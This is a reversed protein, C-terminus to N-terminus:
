STYSSRKFDKLEITGDSNLTNGACCQRVLDSVKVCVTCFVNVFYTLVTSSHLFTSSGISVLSVLAETRQFAALEKEEDGASDLDRLNTALAV